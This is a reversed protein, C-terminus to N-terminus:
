IVNWGFQLPIWMLKAFFGTLAGAVAAMFISLAILVLSKVIEIIDDKM